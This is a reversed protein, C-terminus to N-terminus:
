EFCSGFINAYNVNELFLYNKGNLERLQMYFYLCVVKAEFLPVDSKISTLGKKNGNPGKMTVHIHEKHTRITVTYRKSKLTLTSNLKWNGTFKYM